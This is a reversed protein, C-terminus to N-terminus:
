FIKNRMFKPLSAFGFAITVFFILYAHFYLNFVPSLLDEQWGEYKPYLILAFVIFLCLITTVTYTEVIIIWSLYNIWSGKTKWTRTLYLSLGGMVGGLASFVGAIIIVGWNSDDIDGHIILATGVITPISGMLLAGVIAYRLWSKKIVSRWSFLRSTISKGDQTNTKADIM